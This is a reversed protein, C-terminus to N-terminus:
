REGSPPMQVGPIKGQSWDNHLKNAYEDAADGNTFIGLHQGTQLAHQFASDDDLLQGNVIQPYLMEKGNVERSASHVTGWYGNGLNAVPLKTLDITGPSVLGRIKGPAMLLTPKEPPNATYNQLRQSLLQAFLENMSSAM